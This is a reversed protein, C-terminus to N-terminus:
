VGRKRFSAPSNIAKSEGDPRVYLEGGSIDTEDDPEKEIGGM